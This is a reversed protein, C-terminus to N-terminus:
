PLGPLHFAKQRLQAFAMHVESAFEKRVARCELVLSHGLHVTYAVREVRKGTGDTSDAFKRVPVLGYDYGVALEKRRSHYAKGHVRLSDSGSEDICSIHHDGVVGVHLALWHHILNKCTDRTRNLLSIFSHIGDDGLAEDSGVEFAFLGNESSATRVIRCRQDTQGHIRLPDLDPRIHVSHTRSIRAPHRVCFIQLLYGELLSGLHSM